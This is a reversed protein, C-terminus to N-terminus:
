GSGSSVRRGAGPRSRRGPRRHRHHQARVGPRGRPARRIRRLHGGGPGGTGTRAVFSTEIGYAPHEVAFGHGRMFEALRASSEYEEYSLEPNEYLWRSIARLDADIEQYRQHAQEKANM